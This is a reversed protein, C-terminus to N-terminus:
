KDYAHKHELRCALIHGHHFVGCFAANSLIREDRRQIIQQQDSHRNRKPYSEVANYSDPERNLLLIRYISIGELTKLIISFCHLLIERPVKLSINPDYTNKRRLFIITKKYSTVNINLLTVLIRICILSHFMPTDICSTITAPTANKRSAMISGIAILVTAFELVTFQSGETTVMKWTNSGIRTTMPIATLKM